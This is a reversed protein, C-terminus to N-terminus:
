ELEVRSLYVAGEPNDSDALGVAFNKSTHSWGIQGNKSIAIGGAEGGVRKMQELAKELSNQPDLSEMTLMTRAALITRAISEGDGSFAVAGVSNDAYFGCGPQPSDGLRGAAVGQLGGTSTAVALNGQEDLAVCGVTDHGPDCKSKSILEDEFCQTIGHKSAFRSAGDGVMLVVNEDLMMKAVSVPHRVLRLAGVAGVKLNAGEMISASMEIQGDENLVSGVGANFTEDDELQQVVTEVVDIATRGNRLMSSGISLAKRVGDRNAQHKEVPIEKAGGHAILAWM